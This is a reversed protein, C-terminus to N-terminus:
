FVGYNEPQQQAKMAHTSRGVLNSWSNPPDQRTASRIVFDVLKKLNAMKWIELNESKWELKWCELVQCIIITIACNQNKEIDGV